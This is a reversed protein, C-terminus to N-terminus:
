TRDGKGGARRGIDLWHEHKAIAFNLVGWVAARVAALMRELYGLRDRPDEPWRDGDMECHVKAMQEIVDPDREGTM